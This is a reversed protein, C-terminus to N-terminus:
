ALSQLAKKELLDVSMREYRTELSLGAEGTDTARVMYEPSLWIGDKAHYGEKRNLRQRKRSSAAERKNKQIKYETGRVGCVANEM